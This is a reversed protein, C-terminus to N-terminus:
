ESEKPQVFNKKKPQQNPIKKTQNSLYRMTKFKGLLSERYNLSWWFKCIWDNKVEPIIRENTELIKGLTTETESMVM